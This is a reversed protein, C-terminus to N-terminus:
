KTMRGSCTGSYIQVLSFKRPIPPIPVKDVDISFDEEKEVPETAKSSDKKEEKQAKAKKGEIINAMNQYIEKKREARFLDVQELYCWITTFVFLDKIDFNTLSLDQKVVSCTFHMLLLAIPVFIFNPPPHHLFNETNM